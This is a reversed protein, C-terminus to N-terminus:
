DRPFSKFGNTWGRTAQKYAAQKKLPLYFLIWELHLQMIGEIYFCPLNIWSYFLISLLM